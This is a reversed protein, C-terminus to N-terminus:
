TFRYGFILLGFGDFLIGYGNYIFNRKIINIILEVM